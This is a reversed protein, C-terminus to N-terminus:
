KGAGKLADFLIGKLMDGNQYRIDTIKWGGAADQELLFRVSDAKGMNRFSVEVTAIGSQGGGDYEPKGIVFGTVKLDQAHYLPDFDIAGVEGKASVADKWILDAFDKTFYRDVVARDKTQFFPGNDAKQAEYLSKVVLDPSGAANSDTKTKGATGGGKGSLSKASKVSLVRGSGSLVKQTDKDVKCEAGQDVKGDFECTDGDKCAALIARGADSDNTFCFAAYDGSEEGVYVMYSDTKGAHLTGKFTGEVVLSDDAKDSQAPCTAAACLIIFSAILSCLVTNTKM